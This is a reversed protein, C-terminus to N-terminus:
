KDKSSGGLNLIPVLSSYDDTWLRLGPRPDIHASSAAVVRIALFKEDTTVLVWDAAFAGADADEPSSVIVSKLGA